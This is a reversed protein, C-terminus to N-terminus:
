EDDEVDTLSIKGDRGNDTNQKGDWQFKGSPLVTIQYVYDRELYLLSDDLATRGDTDVLNGTLTQEYGVSGIKFSGVNVTDNYQNTGAAKGVDISITATDADDLATFDTEVSLLTSGKLLRVGDGSANVITLHASGTSFVATNDVFDAANIVKTQGDVINLTTSWPNGRKREDPNNDAYTRKLTIVQNHVADYKKLVPFITYTGEVLYFTTTAAGKEVYGITEGTQSNLRLEV